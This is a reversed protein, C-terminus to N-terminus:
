ALRDSKVEKCSWVWGGHCRLDRVRRRPDGGRIGLLGVELAEVVERALEAPELVEVGAGVVFDVGAAWAVAARADHARRPRRATECGDAIRAVDAGNSVAGGARRVRATRRQGGRSFAAFSELLHQQSDWGSAIEGDCGATRRNPTCSHLPYGSPLDVGEAISVGQPRGVLQALAFLRTVQRGRRM